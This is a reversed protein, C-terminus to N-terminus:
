DQKKRLRIIVLESRHDYSSAQKWLFVGLFGDWFTEATHSRTAAVILGDSTAHFAAGWANGPLNEAVQTWQGSPLPCYMLRVSDDKLNRGSLAYLGGAGPVWAFSTLYEQWPALETIQGTRISAAMLKATKGVGAESRLFALRDGEPSWWMMWSLLRVDLDAIKRQGSGDANAVMLTQSVMRGPGTTKDYAYDRRYFAITKGDPSFAPTEVDELVKVTPGGALPMRFLSLRKNERRGFYISQGDPSLKMNFGAVSM